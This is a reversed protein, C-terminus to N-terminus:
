LVLRAGSLEDVVSVGVARVQGPQGDKGVAPAGTKPDIVDFWGEREMHGPQMPPFDVDGLLIDKGITKTAM